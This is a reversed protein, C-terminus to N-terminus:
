RGYKEKNKNWLYMRLEDIRNDKILKNFFLIVADARGLGGPFKQYMNRIIVNWIPSKYVMVKLEDVSAKFYNSKRPDNTKTVFKHGYRREYLREWNDITTTLVDSCGCDMCCDSDIADEYKIKLSYCKSCYEVPEEDYSGTNRQESM